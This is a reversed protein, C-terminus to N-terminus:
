EDCIVAGLLDIQSYIPTPYDHSKLWASLQDRTTERLLLKINPGADMTAYAEIEGAKRAAQLSAIITKSRDTLYRIPPITAECIAHLALANREALEGIATFDRAELAAEFAAADQHSQKVWASYNPATEVTRRMADTSGVEKKSADLVLIAMLTDNFPWDLREVSGDTKWKVCGGYLSRVASGSGIRTRKALEADSYHCEYYADAAKALAAFASASSALGAATPGTNMSDIVLRRPEIGGNFQKLFPILREKMPKDEKGNLTFIVDDDTHEKLTTITEFVSLSLSISPNFPLVLLPDAKGWYKILAINIPARATVTKKM